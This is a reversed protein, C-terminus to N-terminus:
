RSADQLEVKLEVLLQVVRARIDDRVGRLGEEDLELPDPLDWEMYRRGPFVPCADGCGMTIVYDAARVVEDTLPKPFEGWLEVGVEELAAAVRPHAGEAPSSGATRVHVRGGSLHRLLAGAMQSRGANQVCVFLVEPTDRLVLGQSTALADLRDAAYRATMTLLHERVRTRQSLLLYSQAVYGAVTERSFTSSFRYSLDDVVTAVAHPLATVPAEPTTPEISESSLLRGFRVWADVTPVWVDDDSRILDVLALSHIAQEVVSLDANLVVAIEPAKIGSALASLVRLTDPNGLVSVQGARERAAQEGLPSGVRHQSEESM